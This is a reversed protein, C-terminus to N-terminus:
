AAAFGSTTKWRASPSAPYTRGMLKPANRSPRSKWEARGEASFDHAIMDAVQTVGQDLLMGMGQSGLSNWKALNDELKGDEIQFNFAYIRFFAAKGKLKGNSKLTRDFLQAMVQVRLNAFKSDIAYRPTLVLARPPLQKAAQPDIFQWSVPMVTIVPDTSLGESPLKARLEAEIRKNFDYGVLLDRLPTVREEAAKVQANAIAASVLGGILGGIIAGTVAAGTTSVDVGLEQQNLVVEVPLQPGVPTPLTKSAAFANFTVAFACLLAGLRRIFM